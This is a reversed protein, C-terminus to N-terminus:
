NLKDDCFEPPFWNKKKKKINIKNIIKVVSKPRTQRM